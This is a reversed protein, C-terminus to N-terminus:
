DLREMLAGMNGAAAISAEKVDQLLALRQVDDEAVGAAIKSFGDLRSQNVWARVKPHKACAYRNLMDVWLSRIFDSVTDPLPLPTTLSNREEDTDLEAELYAILAASFPIQPSRIMQITIRGDEFVPKIPAPPLATATCAIYLTDPEAEIEGRQLTVRGPEIATVHGMRIQDSVSNLMDREGESVTAAHYVDPHIDPNLRLWAGCAEMRLAYDKADTAEALARRQDVFSSFTTEFFADGPQTYARNLYWAERGLIWRIRDTPVGNEVLWVVTDIGTKGSGIVTFHTHQTVRRPLANPAVVVVDASFEFKPKTTSPVPNTYWSADVIKRNVKVTEIQGSLLHRVRGDEMVERNPLFRVRGSALLRDRMLSHLYNVIEPYEALEMFGANPGSTDLRDRGMSTSEVGYLVSPQHLKVFSYADNWHGGPASRRDVLTMTADSRTLMEDAFALGSVGAGIILYDTEITM